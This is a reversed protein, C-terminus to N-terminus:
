NRGIGVIFDPRLEVEIMDGKQPPDEADFSPMVYYADANEAEVPDPHANELPRAEIVGDDSQLLKMQRITYFRGKEKPREEGKICSEAHPNKKMGGKKLDQVLRVKLRSLQPKRGLYKMMAPYLYYDTTFAAGGPPGSIGIVPTTGIVGFSSHHGPGHSTQHYFVTGIEELMEIGWDDNGKSSGANLVVIDAARAAEKLANKLAEKEDPVIDLVIPEGGWQKIKDAIMFSNSEINRGVPIENGAHVLESGTPIFAVRPKKIVKVFTNNGSVIFAALLPTVPTGKKVLLDGKKMKSGKESTGAYRGSPMADFAIRSNDESLFVHEVVITTDFGEPMAVGTNAFEWQVGRAWDSTDPMGNKFDDWHVAVSDMRCTLCNPSDWQAHVDEALVRGIAEAVPVAESLPEFHSNQLIIEVAKEKDVQIHKSHDRM